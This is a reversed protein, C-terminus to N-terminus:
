DKTWVGKSLDQWVLGETAWPDKAELKAQFSDADANSSFDCTLSLETKDDNLAWTASSADSVDMDALGMASKAADVNAHAKTGFAAKANASGPRLRNCLEVKTGAVAASGNGDGQNPTGTLRFMFGPETKEDYNDTAEGNFSDVDHMLFVVKIQAM